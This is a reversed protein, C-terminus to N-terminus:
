IDIDEDLVAPTLFIDDLTEPNSPISKSSVPAAAYLNAGPAQNSMKQPAKSDKLKIPRKSQQTKELEQQERLKSRKFYGKISAEDRHEIGERAMAAKSDKYESWSIDPWTTDKIPIEFHQKAEPDYFWIRRISRPDYHFLFKRKLKPSKPDAAGIWRNLIEHYYLLGIEVGYPHIAREVFPMFDIRLKERNAPLVPLGIGPTKADGLLGLQWKRLPTTELASHRNVHYNNVIWDVIECELAALTYIAKGSSDYDPSISPTRHTTGRKSHLQKNVNGVMAEIYAGYRPTKVPRLQLDLNNEECAHQLLHGKFERANDAHIKRMKGFVPWQGPLGLQTLLEQKPMIAMYLAVGTCYANPRLLGLFYGVIMRSFADIVLTLWPRREIPRRTDADVVKIDLQVHDVQVCALPQPGDPFSGPTPDFRHSADEKHGRASLRRKLPVDTIRKRITNRHPIPIGQEEFKESINQIFKAPTIAQPDLFSELAEEIIADQEPTLLRAGLRRGRKGEVLGSIHGTEIYSRLWRYVTSTQVGHQAAVERVDSRKREQMALLPKIIRYTAKAKKWDEDSIDALPPYASAPKGAGGENSDAGGVLEEGTCPLLHVPDVRETEGTDVFEVLVSEISLIRRIRCVRKGYTVFTGQQIRIFGGPEIPTTKPAKM